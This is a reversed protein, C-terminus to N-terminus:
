QVLGKVKLIDHRRTKKIFPKHQIESQTIIAKAKAWLAALHGPVHCNRPGQLEASCRDVLYKLMNLLTVQDLTRVGMPRLKRKKEIALIEYKCKDRARRARHLRNVVCRVTQARQAAEVDTDEVSTAVLIENLNVLRMKMTAVKDNCKSFSPDSAIRHRLRAEHLAGTLKKVVEKVNSM